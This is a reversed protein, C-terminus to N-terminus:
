RSTNFNSLVKYKILENTAEIIELRAGKYGIVNSANLDYEVDNNFAPRALDKSFERYGFNVKNAFKGSYILTQQFNNVGSARQKTVEFVSKKCVKANLFSVGCLEQPSYQAEIIKFPDTLLGKSVSGGGGYKSPLYYGSKTGGGTKTYYGASFTYNGVLGVKVPFELFIADHESITGQTLLADGIYATNVTGVPPENIQVTEPSYDYSPSACGQILIYLGASLLIRTLKM